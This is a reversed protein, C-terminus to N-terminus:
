YFETHSPFFSEREDRTPFRVPPGSEHKWQCRDDSTRGNPRLEVRDGFQPEKAGPVCWPDYIVSSKGLKIGLTVSSRKIWVVTPSELTYEDRLRTVEDQSVLSNPEPAASDSSMKGSRFILRLIDLIIEIM